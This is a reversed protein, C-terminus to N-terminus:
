GAVAWFGSLLTEAYPFISFPILWANSCALRFNDSVFFDLHAFTMFQEMGATSSNLINEPSLREIVLDWNGMKVAVYVSKYVAVAFFLAAALLVYKLPIRPIPRDRFRVYAAGVIAIVLSSRHGLYVVFLLGLLSIALLGKHTRYGSLVAFI